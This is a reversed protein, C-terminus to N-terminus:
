NRLSQLFSLPSFSLRNIALIFIGISLMAIGVATPQALPGLLRATGDTFSLVTAATGADLVEVVNGITSSVLLVLGEGMARVPALLLGGMTNIGEIARYQFALVVGGFIFDQIFSTWGGLSTIQSSATDGYHSPSHTMGVVFGVGLVSVLMMEPSATTVITM